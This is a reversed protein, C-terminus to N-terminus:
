SSMKRVKIASDPSSKECRYTITIGAKNTYQYYALLPNKASKLIFLCPNAGFKHIMEKKWGYKEVGEDDDDDGVDDDIPIVEPKEDTTKNKEQAEAQEQLYLALLDILLDDNIPVTNNPFIDKMDDGTLNDRGRIAIALQHMSERRNKTILEKAQERYKPEAFLQKKDVPKGWPNMANRYSEMEGIRKLYELRKQMPTLKKFAIIKQQIEYPLTHFDMEDHESIYQILAREELDNKQKALLKKYEPSLSSNKLSALAQDATLQTAISSSSFGTKTLGINSLLSSSYEPFDSSQDEKIGANQRESLRMYKKMKEHTEVNTSADGMAIPAIRTPFNNVVGTTSFIKPFVIRKSSRRLIDRNGPPPTFPKPRIM